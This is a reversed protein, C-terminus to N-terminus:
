TLFNCPLSFDLLYKNRCIYLLLVRLIFNKLKIKIIDIEGISIIANSSRCSSIKVLFNIFKRKCFLYKNRCYRIARCSIIRKSIVIIRHGSSIKYKLLKKLIILYALFIIICCNIGLYHKRLLRLYRLIIRHFCICSM